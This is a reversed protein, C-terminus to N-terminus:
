GGKPAPADLMVMGHGKEGGKVDHPDVKVGFRREPGDAFTLLFAAPQGKFFGYGTIQNRNNIARAETLTWGSDKPLFDNLDLMKQGDFGMAHRSKDPMDAFGVAQGQNNISWLASNP